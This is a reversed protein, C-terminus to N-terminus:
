TMWTQRASPIARAAHLCLAPLRMIIGKYVSVYDCKNKQQTKKKYERSRKWTPVGQEKAGSDQEWALESMSLTVNNEGGEGGRGEMWEATLSGWYVPQSVCVCVWQSLRERLASSPLWAAAGRALSILGPCRRRIGCRSCTAADGAPDEGRRRRWCRRTIAGSFLSSQLPVFLRGGEGAKIKKFFIIIFFRQIKLWLQPANLSKWM